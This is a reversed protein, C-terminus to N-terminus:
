KNRVLFDDLLPQLRPIQRQRKLRSALVINKLQELAQDFDDNVILFEYEGFHSIEALANSMRGKIVEDSDQARGKLRQELEILSPPIIFISVADPIKKLVQEAGQWDIELIVDCQDKLAKTVTKEATGYSHGFVEAFELFGDEAIMKKFDERDVFFYDQEDTEGPRPSRTTHSISVVLGNVCRRLSTVLSTKGAGSPASIIFLIGSTM